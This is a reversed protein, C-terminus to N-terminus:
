ITSLRLAVWESDLGDNVQNHMAEESEHRCFDEQASDPEQCGMHREQLVTPDNISSVKATSLRIERFLFIVKRNM